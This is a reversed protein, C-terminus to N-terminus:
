IHILSLGAGAADAPGDRRGGDGGDGGDGVDASGALALFARVFATALCDRLWLNWGRHLQISERSSSLVFDANLLFPIRSHVQSTPHPLYPCTPPTPNHTALLSQLM